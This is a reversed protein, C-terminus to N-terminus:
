SRRDVGIRYIRRANEVFLKAQEEASFDRVCSAFGDFIDQFSACLSDVPYNSAFMCRDVGFIEIVDLVVRRNADLRWQGGPEGIGSIKIAVNPHAAMAALASRWSRLGEESRDSPMGAHNIVIRTGPFDAAVRAAEQLHWWPTQLEYHLGLPGLRAYGQLWAADTMGGPAGGPAANARPKQRVGRVFDFAALQELMAAADPRDLWAQGIAVSPLGGRERLSGIFRMEGMPDRPDWEAEVHVSGLLNVGATDRAYDAPLYPRNLRSHDGYRHHPQGPDNLWPYRHAQPDLFHHHTDILSLM